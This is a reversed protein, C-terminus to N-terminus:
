GRFPTILVGEGTAFVLKFVLFHRLSITTASLNSLVVLVVPSLIAVCVVGILFARMLIGEPMWHSLMGGELLGIRGKRVQRRAARTVALCTFLPVLLATVITDVVLGVSGWILRLPL